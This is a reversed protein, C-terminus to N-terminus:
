PIDDQLTARKTFNAIDDYNASTYDTGAPYHIGYGYAGDMGPCLIQFTDQNAYATSSTSSTTVSTDYYPSREVFSTTPSGTMTFTPSTYKFVCGTNSTYTSTGYGFGFGFASGGTSYNANVSAFYLYPSNTSLNTGLGNDPFYQYGSVRSAQFDFFPGIRTKQYTGAGHITAYKADFPDTPDASFGIFNGNADQMGGLWFVLATAPTLFQSQAWFFPGPNTPSSGHAWTALQPGVSLQLNTIPNITPMVGTYRPFLTTPPSNSSLGDPPYSGFRAKFASVAQDLAMVEMKMRANMASIRAKHAVTAILAALIAIIVIVVLLEVLTFGKRIRCDCSQCTTTLARTM